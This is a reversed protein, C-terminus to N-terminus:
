DRANKVLGQALKERRYGTMNAQVEGQYAFVQISTDQLNVQWITPIVRDNERSEAGILLLEWNNIWKADWLTHSPGGFFIRRRTGANRDIVAAESDPGAEELTTNGGRRAVIYNYSYLDLALSSDENYILYQQFPKLRAEDVQMPPVQEIKSEGSLLFSDQSFTSDQKGLYQFLEPFSQQTVSVEADTLAEQLSDQLDNLGTTSNDGTSNNCGALLAAFLWLWLTIRAM